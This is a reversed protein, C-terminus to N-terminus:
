PLRLANLEPVADYEPDKHVLQAGLLLALSCIWADALSVQRMAKVRAAEHLWAETPYKEEVPWAKVLNLAWQTKQKDHRRLSLYALEMLAMFPLYITVEGSQATGLLNLVTEIGEEDNLITFLASTDLVYSSM